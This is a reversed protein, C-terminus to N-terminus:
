INKGWRRHPWFWQEPTTRIWSEIEHNIETALALVAADDATDPLTIPPSITVRFRCTGLRETRMYFLPVQKKVAIKIHSISTRAPHGFFPVSIGERLQQDVLLCMMQGKRLAGVMGLAAERGKRYIDGGYTEQRRHLLGSLLPNNLPRYIAAVKKGTTLAAFPGFEWNGIHAGILFGGGDLAKLHDLGFFKVWGKDFISNIHPYEGIVRGLNRWMARLIRDKEADDLDPMAHALNRLARRHWPTLPAVIGLLGGMAVSAFRVPLLRAFFFLGFGFLAELPWRIIQRFWKQLIQGASFAM